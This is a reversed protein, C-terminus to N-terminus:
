EPTCGHEFIWLVRVCLFFGLYFCSFVSEVWWPVRVHLFTYFSIFYVIFLMYCSCAIFDFRSVPHFCKKRPPLKGALQPKFWVKMFPRFTLNFRNKLSRSKDRKVHVLHASPNFRTQHKCNATQRTTITSGMKQGDRQPCAVAWHQCAVSAAPPMTNGPETKSGAGCARCGPRWPPEPFGRTWCCSSLVYGGWTRRHSLRSCRKICVNYLTIWSGRM